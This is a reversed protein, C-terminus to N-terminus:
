SAPSGIYRGYLAWGAITLRKIFGAKGVDAEAVLPIRRDPLDPVHVILEAV